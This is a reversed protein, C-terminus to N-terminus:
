QNISTAAMLDFFYTPENTKHLSYWAELTEPTFVDLARITEYAFELAAMGSATILSDDRVVPTHQYFSEGSYNSCVSQLYSLDNSTHFRQDLFGSKALGETAGCIAAILTGNSLADGVKSLLPDHLTEQWTQGGPLILADKLTLELQSVAIDPLIRLGGMTTIPHLTPGVTVVNFPPADTKFYRRSHLEPMVYGYEWDSISDFVYLYVTHTLM